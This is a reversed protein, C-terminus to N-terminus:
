FTLAVPEPTDALLQLWAVRDGRAEPTIKVMVPQGDALDCVGSEEVVRQSLLADRGDTVSVFGYGRTRDFWKVSAKKVEPESAELLGVGTYTRVREDGSHPFTMKLGPLAARMEKGFIAKASPKQGQGQCWAVWTAYLADVSVVKGAGLMCRDRLFASIPSGLDELTRISDRATEPQLFYGRDRLRRWGQISWNLIGSLEGLLKNTLGSDERGFFSETLVLVIFRAALAGSADTMRPLENSLVVFRVDLKGTWAERYKRDITLADEGTISLLREAIAAQDARGGLRADSIIAVRKGVLPALGFNTGLEALTPGVRNKAGVVGALVRAITGKGSRKPGVILFAKQQSTDSSLCYGFLEQLTEISERDNPWLQRLFALWERPEPAGPEYAFDVANSTFFTPTHPLLDGSPLHLLGNACSIIDGADVDPVHELWAPASVTSHLLAAARLGDLVNNVSNTNPRVPVVGWEGTEKDKVSTVCADLFEYVRARIDGPDVEPYASGDWAYFAGRHHYLTPQGDASYQLERFRKATAYPEGAKIRWPPGDEDAATKWDPVKAAASDFMDGLRAVVEREIYDPTHKPKPRPANRVSEELDAIVVDRDRGLFAASAMAEVACRRLGFDGSAFKAKWEQLWGEYNGTEAARNRRRKPRSFPVPEIAVARDITLAGRIDALKFEVANEVRGFYFAQSLTWSERSLGGGLVGNARDVLAARHQPSMRDFLPFLVRWRPADSRYSPSTYLICDLDAQRLRREAEEFPMKEADYDVEVGTISLVNGDYRLSGNKSRNVGFTAFKLLPLRDKTPARTERLLAVLEDRRLEREQKTEAALDAFITVTVEDVGSM